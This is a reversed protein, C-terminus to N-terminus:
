TSTRPGASIAKLLVDCYQIAFAKRQITVDPYSLLKLTFHFLGILYQTEDLDANISKLGNRLAGILDVVWQFEKTTKIKAGDHFLSNRSYLPLLASWDVIRSWDTHNWRNTDMVRFLLDTELKALDKMFHDQKSNAFDIFILRPPNGSVLINRSHLDGHVCRTDFEDDFNYIVPETTGNIFNKIRDITKAYQQPLRLPILTKLEEAAELVGAKVKEDLAYFEAWL